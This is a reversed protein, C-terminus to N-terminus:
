CLILIIELIVHFYYPSNKLNIVLILCALYNCFLGKFAMDFLAANM